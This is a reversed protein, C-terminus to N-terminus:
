KRAVISIVNAGKPECFSAWAMMLQRRRELADSRRYAQETQDGVSHALAQEALERHFNTENGAWDRFASRMGHITAGKIKMQRLVAAMSSPSLPKNRRQGPFVFSGMKAEALKELIEVARGSLPIRHERGAKMRHAPITWTKTAFDIEGWLAGLVEGSRGAVLFELALAPMSEHERLRAIFNPVDPYSMAAFHKRALKPRKPLILAL